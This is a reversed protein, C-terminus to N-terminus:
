TEVVQEEYKYGAELMKLIDRHEFGYLGCAVFSHIEILVTEGSETKGVDITYAELGTKLKEFEEIIYIIKNKDPREADWDGVYQKVDKILGNYVFVRWESKLKIEESFFMKEETEYVKNKESHGVDAYIEKLIENGRLKIGALNDVTNISVFTSSFGKVLTDSKVFFHKNGNEKLIDKLEDLTGRGVIRNGVINKNNIMEKPINIPKIPHGLHYETFDITGIPVIRTVRGSNCYEIACKQTGIRPEKEGELYVQHREKGYYWEQFKAENFVTCGVDLMPLGYENKQVIWIM